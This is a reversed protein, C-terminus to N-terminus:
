FESWKRDESTSVACTPNCARNTVNPQTTRFCPDYSHASYPDSGSNFWSSIADRLAVGGIANNVYDATIAAAGHTHCSHIFAGNGDKVYGKTGKLAALFDAQYQNVQEAQTSNCRTDPHGACDAFGGTGCVGNEIGSQNPFGAPLAATLICESQWADFGSNVIFIPTDVFDYVYQAFNCKWTENAAAYHAVCDADMSGGASANSIRHINKIQPEYVDAATANKHDLFFGSLPAAKFVSLAAANARFWARVYDANLYTALGGASVGTLLVKEAGALDYKAALSALMADILRKGRFHLQTTNYVLPQDLNSVFSNGDCYQMYVINYECFAPNITCNQSMIGNESTAPAWTASDGRFTQAREWCDHADYCWGGGEFFIMWNRADAGSGKGIYYGGPSGSLCMAGMTKVEDTMLELDMLGVAATAALLAALM